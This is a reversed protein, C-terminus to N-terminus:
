LREIVGFELFVVVMAGKAKLALMGVLRLM